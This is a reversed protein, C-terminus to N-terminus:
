LLETVGAFTPNLEILDDNISKCKVFPLPLSVVRQEYWSKMVRPDNTVAHTMKSVLHFSQMDQFSLSMAICAVLDHSLSNIM